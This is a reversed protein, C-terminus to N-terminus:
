RQRVLEASWSSILDRDAFIIGRCRYTNDDLRMLYETGGYRGDTSSFLSIIYGPTIELCGDLSGLPPAAAKWTTSGTATLPVIEFITSLELPADGEVSITRLSNWTDTLHRIEVRGRLPSVCRHRDRYEGVVRWIGECLLFSHGTAREKM